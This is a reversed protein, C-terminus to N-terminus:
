RDMLPAIRVRTEHRLLELIQPESLDLDEGASVGVTVQEEAAVSEDIVVRSREEIPILEQLRTSLPQPARIMLRVGPDSVLPDLRSEGDGDGQGDDGICQIQLVTGGALKVTLSAGCPIVLVNSGAEAM